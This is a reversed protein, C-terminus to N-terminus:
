RGIAMTTTFSVIEKDFRGNQQALATRTKLNWPIRIKLKVLSAM